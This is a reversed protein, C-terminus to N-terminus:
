SIQQTKILIVHMEQDHVTTIYGFRIKLGNWIWHFRYFIPSSGQLFKEQCLKLNFSISEYTTLCKENAASWKLKGLAFYFNYIVRKAKWALNKLDSLYWNSLHFTNTFPM